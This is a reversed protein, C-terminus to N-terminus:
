ALQQLRLLRPELDDDVDIWQHQIALLDRRNDAGRVARTDTHGRVVVAAPM